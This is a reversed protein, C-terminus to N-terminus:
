YAIRCGCGKGGGGDDDDEEEPDTEADPVPEVEDAVDPVPEVDDEDAPYPHDSPVVRIQYANLGSDATNAFMFYYDGAPIGEGPLWFSIEYYGPTTGEVGAKYEDWDGSATTGTYEFAIPDPGQKFVVV